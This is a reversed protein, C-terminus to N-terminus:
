FLLILNLLLFAWLEVWYVYEKPRYITAFVPVALTYIWPWSVNLYLWCLVGALAAMASIYHITKHFPEKFLPASSCVILSITSFYPLLWGNSKELWPMILLLAEIGVLSSFCTPSLIYSTESLSVPIKKFKWCIGINYIAFLTLALLLAGM